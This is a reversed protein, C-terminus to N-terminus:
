KENRTQNVGRNITNASSTAPRRTRAASPGTVSPLMMASPSRSRAGSVIGIRQGAVGALFKLDFSSADLFAFVFLHWNLSKISV